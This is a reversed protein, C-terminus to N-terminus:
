QPPGASMVLVHARSSLDDQVLKVGDTMLRAGTLRGLSDGVLTRVDYTAEPLLNRPRVLLEGRDVSGKFGFILVNRRDDTIEEVVDWGDDGTPAQASLLLAHSRAVTDRITKYNRIEATLDGRLQDDLAQYAYTVGLIGPM